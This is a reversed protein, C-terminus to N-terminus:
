LCSCFFLVDYLYSTILYKNVRKVLSKWLEEKIYFIKETHLQNKASEIAELLTDLTEKESTPLYTKRNPSFRIYPFDQPNEKKIEDM